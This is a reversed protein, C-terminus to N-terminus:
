QSGQWAYALVIGMVGQRPMSNDYRSIVSYTNGAHVREHIPCTTIEHPPNHDGMPAEYHATMKCQNGTADDRLAVDIGGEHQHGGAFTLYGDWPATFTRTNTHVSGPGGNGPVDYQSNGCGTVDLFFPKVPRSNQATAAPQYGVTYQIYVTMAEDSMNMIHWLANWNENQGNLYAYPNPLSLPTRESGSGAFREARSCFADQRAPNMLLVHHLHVMHRPVPDGSADVIDFSMTKIGFAGSPRPVNSRTGQSEWGTQNMAALNFPGIKFTGTVVAGGGPPANVIPECAAAALAAMTISAVFLFSRTRLM